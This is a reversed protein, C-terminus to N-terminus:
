STWAGVEQAIGPGISLLPLVQDALGAVAAPMGYVVCSKEDQAWVTSGGQKLLRAGERGDAGM